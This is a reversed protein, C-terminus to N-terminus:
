RANWGGPQAQSTHWSHCPGCLGRGYQPDNPDLGLRVLEDRGRPHHDAHASPVLCGAAGHGQGQANRHEDTCVCLPDKRLVGRRFRERHEHDYGRQAATGRAQEARAKCDDCRGGETLEPCGPTPCVRKARPMTCRGSM